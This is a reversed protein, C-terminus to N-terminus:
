GRETRSRGGRHVEGCEWGSERRGPSATRRRGASIRSAGSPERVVTGTGQPRGPRGRRSDRGAPLEDLNFEAVELTLKGAEIKSFDLIDNIVTLLSEASTRVTDLCDRQEDTLDTDLATETMGIVGNMPTRIEHSMNALFESKTRNALEAADRAREIAEQGRRQETVDRFGWVRGVGKGNIRQPESHQEIIKGDRCHLIEDTKAECDERLVMTREMFGGSDQLSKSVREFILNGDRLRLLAAPIGWMAAFKQNYAVVEGEPNVALIGDATSELAARMTETQERVRRRLITVWVAGLLIVGGLVGLIGAVRRGTWFPASRVLVIGDASNLLVRYSLPKQNEDMEPSWVGTLRLLSGKAFSRVRDTVQKEELRGAFISDGLQLTVVHDPGQRSQDVLYGQITVLEADHDGSLSTANTMDVPAPLGGSGIRRFDGDSLIPAYSGPTPFGTADVLDGRNVQTGSSTKLVAGGSADQVFIWQGPRVLTVAGRVHIRRGAAAAPTFQMLSNIPLIPLEYPDASADAEIRVHEMGPVFLQVGVLQRRRNFLTGCAGRVSVVADVLRRYDVGADFNRIRANFRNRGSGIALILQPPGARMDPPLRNETSVSQVVGKVEIWQSDESGTMLEPPTKRSPAPLRGHGGVRIRANEISPAFDGATSSGTVEM